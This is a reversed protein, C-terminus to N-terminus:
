DDEIPVGGTRGELLRDSGQHSGGAETGGVAAARTRGGGGLVQNLIDKVREDREVARNPTSAKGNLPRKFRDLPGISYDHIRPLFHRAREGPTIDESRGYNFLWRAFTDLDLKPSSSLLRALQSAEGGDWPCEQKWRWHYFNFIREKFASHRPDPVKIKKPSKKKKEKNEARVTAEEVGRKRSLTEKQVRGWNMKAM